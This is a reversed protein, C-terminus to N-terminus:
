KNNKYINYATELQKDTLNFSNNNIYDDYITKEYIHKTDLKDVLPKLKHLDDITLGIYKIFEPVLYKGIKLADNVKLDIDIFEDKTLQPYLILDKKNTKLCFSTNKNNIPKSIICLEDIDKSKFDTFSEFFVTSGIRIKKIITINNRM